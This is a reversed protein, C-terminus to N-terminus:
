SRSNRAETKSKSKLRYSLIIAINTENKLAAFLIEIARDAEKCDILFAAYCLLFESVTRLIKYNQMISVTCQYFLENYRQM